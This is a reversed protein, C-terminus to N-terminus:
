AYLDKSLSSVQLWEETPDQLRKPANDSFLFYTVQGGWEGGFCSYFTFGRNTNYSVMM